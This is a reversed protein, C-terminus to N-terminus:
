ARCSVTRRFLSQLKAEYYEPGHGSPKPKQHERWSEELWHLILLLEHVRVDALSIKRGSFKAYKDLLVQLGDKEGLIKQNGRSVIALDYAPDGIQAMEWDVVAVVGESDSTSQWDHLLNQPLLDGHLVCTQDDSPLYNAIWDRVQDALPFEAFLDGDIEDLRSQIHQTRTNRNPLHDFLGTDVGHVNAAVHSIRKLTSRDKFRDLSVGALATEIMGIPESNDGKVFCVFEPTPHAFGCSMLARLTEAERVLRDHSEPGQQWDHQQQLLRLVYAQETRVSPLDRGRILFWYNDHWIGEAIRHIKGDVEVRDGFGTIGEFSRQILFRLDRYSHRPSRHVM